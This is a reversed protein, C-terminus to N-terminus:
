SQGLSQQSDGPNELQAASGNNSTKTQTVIQGQQQIQLQQLILDVKSALRAEVGKMETETATMRTNM